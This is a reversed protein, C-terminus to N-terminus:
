ALHLTAWADRFTEDLSAQLASTSCSRPSRMLDEEPRDESEPLRQIWGLAVHSACWGHLCQLAPVNEFVSQRAAVAFAFTGCLETRVITLPQRVLVWCM